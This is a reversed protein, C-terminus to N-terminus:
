KLALEECDLANRLIDTYMCIWDSDFMEIVGGTWQNQRVCVINEVLELSCPDHLFKSYAAPLCSGSAFHTKRNSKMKRKWCTAALSFIAACDPPPPLLFLFLFLEIWWWTDCWRRQCAIKVQGSVALESECFMVVVKVWLAKFSLPPFTGKKMRKGKRLGCLQM